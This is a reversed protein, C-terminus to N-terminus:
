CNRKWLFPFFEARFSSSKKMYVCMKVSYLVQEKVGPKDRLIKEEREAELGQSVDVCLSQPEKVFMCFWTPYVFAASYHLRQQVSLINRNM